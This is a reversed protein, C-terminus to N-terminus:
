RHRRRRRRDGRLLEFCLLAPFADLWFIHNYPAPRRDVALLYQTIAENIHYVDNERVRKM